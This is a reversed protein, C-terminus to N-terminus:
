VGTPRVRVTTCTAMAKKASRNSTNERLMLRLVHVPMQLFSLPNESTARQNETM